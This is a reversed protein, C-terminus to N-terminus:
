RRRRWDSVDTKWWRELISTLTSTSPLTPFSEDTAISLKAGVGTRVAPNFHGSGEFFDRMVALRDNRNSAPLAPGSAPTAPLPRTVSPGEAALAQMERLRAKDRLTLKRSALRRDDRHAQGSQILSLVAGLRKHEVVDGAGVHPQKDLVDCPLSSGEFRIVVTGDAAEHVDVRVRRRALDLTEPNPEILYTRRKFHVVLNRCLTRSERWTFIRELDQGELLPRHADEPSFPDRGFRRNYDAMFQPAFVNAGAMDCIGQLRLEKVLRDQLTRNMREVRGKAQPTNASFIDINLEGLARAFQSV